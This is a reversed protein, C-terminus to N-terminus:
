EPSCSRANTVASNARRTDVSAPSSVGGRAPRKVCRSPIRPQSSDTARRCSKNPRPEMPTSALVIVNYPQCNVHSPTGTCLATDIVASRTRFTAGIPPRTCMSIARRHHRDRLSTKLGSASTPTSASREFSGVTFVADNAPVRSPRRLNSSASRLAQGMGQIVGVSTSSLTAAKTASRTAVFVATAGIWNGTRSRYALPGDTRSSPSHHRRSVASNTCPLKSCRVNFMHASHLMPRSVSRNNPLARYKPM